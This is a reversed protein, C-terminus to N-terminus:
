FLFDTLPAEVPFDVNIGLTELADHLNAASKEEQFVGELIKGIAFERVQSNKLTIGYGTKNIQKEVLEAQSLDCFDTIPQLEGKHEFCLTFVESNEDLKTVIMCM